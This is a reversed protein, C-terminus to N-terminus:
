RDVDEFETKPKGHLCKTLRRESPLLMLMVASRFETLIDEFSPRLKRSLAWCRPILSMMLSGFEEPIAPFDGSQLRRIFGMTTEDTPFVPEGSIIEYLILGFTFVDTKTTHPANEVLQEPAAYGITGTDATPPDEASIPRSVGFDSIKARWNDDLLINSPKLDRHLIGQSHVYRMGLVIDCILLAKGTATGLPTPRGFRHCELLASLSDNRALEMHIEGFSSDDRDSWRLIRIIRPHNLKVLSEVEWILTARDSQCKLRKVAIREHTSPDTEVTVIGFGGKGIIERGISTRKDTRLEKMRESIDLPRTSQGPIQSKDQVAPREITRPKPFRAKNMSRLCRFSHRSLVSSKAEFAITYHEGADELDVDLGIGFHLCRAYHAAGASSEHGSSREYFQVSKLLDKKVGLGHEFCFGINVEAKSHNKDAAASYCRAALELDKEANQGFELLKGLHNLSTSRDLSVAQSFLATAITRDITGHSRSTDSAHDCGM